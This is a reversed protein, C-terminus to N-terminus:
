FEYKARVRQSKGDDFIIALNDVKIELELVRKSLRRIIMPLNRENIDWQALTIHPTWIDPAYYPSISSGLPLTKKWLSEHFKSLQLTRVVPIHLVPTLGTFLALGGARVIFRTSKKAITELKSELKSMAYDSAIQYSFHPFPTKYVGRIHFNHELEKWLSRVLKDNKRDFLTVVAHM